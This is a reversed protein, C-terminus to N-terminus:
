ARARYSDNGRVNILTVRVHVLNALTYIILYIKMTHYPASYCGRQWHLPFIMHLKSKDGNGVCYLNWLSAGSLFKDENSSETCSLSIKMALASSIVFNHVKDMEVPSIIGCHVLDLDNVSISISTEQPKACSYLPHTPPPTVWKKPPFTKKNEDFSLFM